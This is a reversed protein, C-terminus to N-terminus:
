SAGNVVAVLYGAMEEGMGERRASAVIFTFPLFGGLYTAFSAATLVSFAPERFPAVFDQVSAKRKSPPLRSSICVNGVVLLALILFATIRMSWPFGVIPILRSVLIPLIVGGISSGAVVIGLALARHTTFFPPIISIAKRL